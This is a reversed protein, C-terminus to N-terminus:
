GEKAPAASAEAGGSQHEAIWRELEGIERRQMAMTKEAMERLKADPNQRMLVESMAIGGRHHEIMKRAFTESADAGTAQMMAQQMQQEAQSYPTQPGAMAPSDMGDARRAADAAEAAGAAEPAPEEAPTCAALLTAAAAGAIVTMLRISM